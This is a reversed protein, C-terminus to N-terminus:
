INTLILLFKFKQWCFSRKDKCTKPGPLLTPTDMGRWPCGSDDQSKRMYAARLKHTSTHRTHMCKTSMHFVLVIKLKRAVTQSSYRYEPVILTWPYIQIDTLQANQGNTQQTHISQQILKNLWANNCTKQSYVSGVLTRLSINNTVM